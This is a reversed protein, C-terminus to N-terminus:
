FLFNLSVPSANYETLSQSYIQVLQLQKGVGQQVQAEFCLAQSGTRDHSVYVTDELITELEGTTMELLNLALSFYIYWLGLATSGKQLRSSGLQKM